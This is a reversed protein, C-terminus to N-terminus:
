GARAPRAILTGTGGTLPLRPQQRGPPKCHGIGDTRDIPPFLDAQRRQPRAGAEPKAESSLWTVREHSM